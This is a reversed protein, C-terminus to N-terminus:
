APNEVSVTIDSEHLHTALPTSYAGTAEM